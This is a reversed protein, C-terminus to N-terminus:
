EDSTFIYISRVDRNTRLIAKTTAIQYPDRSVRQAARRSLEKEDIGLHGCVAPLDIGAAQM